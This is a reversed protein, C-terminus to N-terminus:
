QKHVYGTKRLIQKEQQAHLYVQSNQGEKKVYGVKTVKTNTSHAADQVVPWDKEAVTGILEFDEGGSLVWENQQDFPFEKLEDRIPLLHYDLHIEVNSAEAVENAESAIGDSIDNLCLRNLMQLKEAFHVRPEPLQHRKTFYQAGDSSYKEGFLLHLGYASDGLHGTVFVIDGERAHSRLRSRGNPVFGFVTVTVVLQNGSVTDGGILDMRYKKAHDSMGRYIEKLQNDSWHSPIVISVMYYAPNSGMAALDSINAGLVRYGIHYPKMTKLSFHVDEVMTDVATVIELGSEPRVVAADDGIGKMLSSQRYYNPTISEIFKFEDM